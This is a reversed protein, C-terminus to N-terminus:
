LGEKALTVVLDRLQQKFLTPNDTYEVIDVNEIYAALLGPGMLVVAQNVHGMRLADLARLKTNIRSGFNSPTAYEDHPVGGRAMVCGALCVVCEGTGMPDHYTWMRVRYGPDCEIIELDNLALTLLESLADPLDKNLEM